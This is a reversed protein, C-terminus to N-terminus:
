APNMRCIMIMPGAKLEKGFSKNCHALIEPHVNTVYFSGVLRVGAVSPEGILCKLVYPLYLREYLTIRPETCYASPFPSSGDCKRSATM